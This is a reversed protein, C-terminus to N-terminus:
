LVRLIRPLNKPPFRKRFAYFITAGAFLFLTGAAARFAEDRSPFCRAAALYAGAFGVAPPLFAGFAQTFLAKGSVGTEVLQGPALERDRPKEAKVPAIKKCEGQMCGFCQFPREPELTVLNGNLELVRGRM